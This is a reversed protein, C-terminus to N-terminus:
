TADREEFVKQDNIRCSVFNINGLFVMDFM